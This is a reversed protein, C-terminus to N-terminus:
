LVQGGIAGGVLRWHYMTEPFEEKPIYKKSNLDRIVPNSYIVQGTV